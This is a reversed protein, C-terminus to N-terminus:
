PIRRVVEYSANTGDQLSVDCGVDTSTNTLTLYVQYTGASSILNVATIDLPITIITGGTVAQFFGTRIAGPIATQAGSNQKSFLQVTFEVDNTGLANNVTVTTSLNVKVLDGVETAEHATGNLIQVNDSGGSGAATAVASTTGTYVLDVIVPRSNLYVTRDGM